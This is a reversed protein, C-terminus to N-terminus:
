VIVTVYGSPNEYQYVPMPVLTRAGLFNFIGKNVSNSQNWAINKGKLGLNKKINSFMSEGNYVM